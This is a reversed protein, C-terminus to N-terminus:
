REGAGKDTLLLADLDFHHRRSILAGAAGPVVVTLGQPESQSLAAGLAAEPGGVLDLLRPGVLAATAGLVALGAAFLLPKSASRV